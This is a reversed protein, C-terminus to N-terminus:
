ANWASIGTIDTRSLHIFRSEGANLWFFNDEAYLTDSINECQLHVAIAPVSSINRILVGNPKVSYELRAKPLDFLCGQKIECNLWYFTRSAVEGDLVVEATLFIPSFRATKKDIKLKGLEKVRSVDYGGFSREEILELESNLIRTKVSWNRNKLVGNDDLVYVPLIQEKGNPNFTEFLICAHLPEYSNKVFYYSMKPVGYYDVTSWSVAPFVDTLKYYCIGTSNPWRTRARELTHRLNGIQCLQSAKIFNELSDLKAFQSSYKEQKEMDKATGFVPTHYVIDGDKEPPWIDIQDSAIYKRVSEMNPSSPFGFEGIFADQYSLISDYPMEEWYVDYNHSTVGGRPYPSTRHFARTGDYEFTLKGIMDMVADTPNRSLSEYHSENGGCWLILSPNNRLRLANRIVTEKLVVPPQYKQSDWCTPWEQMVMLGKRNCLDYFTDTEPMGGGWARLLQVNQNQALTLFRDYKEKTFDLLYDITCWNVGKMFIPLKNIIFTWNYENETVGGPLPAMEITRIGFICSECSSIGSDTVFNVTLQYLNQKGFGNPWWLQSDPIRFQYIETYLSERSCIRCEYEFSEGEFNEPMIQFRLRGKFGGVAGHMNIQLRMLGKSADLTTIFSNLVEIEPVSVLKVSQWIGLSPINAYHWGYVCNIVCTDMWGSNNINAFQDSTNGNVPKFPAPDLKVVLTNETKLFDTVDFDPGGFMGKHDGLLEGNLWVTCYDCVGGFSLRVRKNFGSPRFFKKRYWWTKQSKERAFRDNRGVSPNPIIKAAVLASHISGPVKVPIADEWISNYIRDVTGGEALEWAGDLSFIASSDDITNACECNSLVIKKARLDLIGPKPNYIEKEIEDLSKVQPM